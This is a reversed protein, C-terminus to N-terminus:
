RRRPRRSAGEKQSVLRTTGVVRVLRSTTFPLLNYLADVFNTEVSVYLTEVQGCTLGREWLIESLPLYYSPSLEWQVDRVQKTAVFSSAKEDQGYWKASELCSNGEVIVTSSCGVILCCCLICPLISLLSRSGM